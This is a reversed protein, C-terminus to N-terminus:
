EHRVIAVEPVFTRHKRRASVPPPGHLVKGDEKGDCATADDDRASALSREGLQPEQHLGFAAQGYDSL